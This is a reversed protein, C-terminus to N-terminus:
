SGGKRLAACVVCLGVELHSLLVWCVRCRPIERIM